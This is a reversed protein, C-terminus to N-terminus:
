SCLPSMTALSRVFADVLTASKWGRKVEESLERRAADPTLAPKYPRATTLADYTDVVSMIQALLPIDDGALGDPYGTGDFREHHHRVIPRVLTLSRLESCLGDGVIPHQKILTFESETLRGPKLLVADPIAVKGVDHLFGGRRLAVLQEDTLGLDQGLRVAYTALRECHGATNPDRAEITRALTLIMHEASDLDDTYRKLRCLSRVRAELEGAVFPKTIFDDAGADIGRIRDESTTLGTILVVPLLRTRPMDKLRRCVEFGNLQPMQVDLLVVDPRESEARALATAGDQATVVDFGRRRLLRTIVILNGPEDDAALVKGITMSNNDLVRPCLGVGVM